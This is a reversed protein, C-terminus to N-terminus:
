PLGLLGRAGHSPKLIGESSVQTMYALLLFSFKWCSPKESSYRTNTQGQLFENKDALFIETFTTVSNGQLFIKLAM